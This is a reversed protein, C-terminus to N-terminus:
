LHSRHPAWPRPPGIRTCALPRRSSVGRSQLLEPRWARKSPHSRTCRSRLGPIGGESPRGGELHRTRPDRGRQTCTPSPSPLPPLFSLWLHPAGLPPWSPLAQPAPWAWGPKRGEESGGAGKRHRRGLMVAVKFLVGASTSKLFLVQRKQACGCVQGWTRAWLGPLAAGGESEQLAPGGGARCGM